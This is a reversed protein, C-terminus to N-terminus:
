VETLLYLREPPKAKCGLAVISGLIEMAEDTTWGDSLKVGSASHTHEPMSLAEAWERSPRKLDLSPLQALFEDPFVQICDGSAPPSYIPTEIEKEIALVQLLPELEV